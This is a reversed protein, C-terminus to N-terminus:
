RVADPIRIARELHRVLCYGPRAFPMVATPSGSAANGFFGHWADAHDFCYGKGPFLRDTTGKLAPRLYGDTQRYRKDTNLGVYAGPVARIFIEQDLMALDHLLSHVIRPGARDSTDWVDRDITEPTAVLRFEEVLVADRAALMAERRQESWADAIALDFHDLLGALLELRQPMVEKHWDLNTRAQEPTMKVIGPRPSAGNTLPFPPTAAPYERLLPALRSVPEPKKGLGFLRKGFGFMAKWFWGKGLGVAEVAVGGIRNGDARRGTIM